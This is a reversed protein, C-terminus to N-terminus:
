SHTRGQKIHGRGSGLSCHTPSGLSLNTVCPRGEPPPPPCGYIAMVAEQEPFPTVGMESLDGKPKKGKSLAGLDHLGEDPNVRQTQTQYPIYPISLGSRITEEFPREAVM